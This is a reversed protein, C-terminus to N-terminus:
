QNSANLIIVIGEGLDVLSSRDRLLQLISYLILQKFVNSKIRNLVIAPTNSPLNTIKLFFHRNYIMNIM